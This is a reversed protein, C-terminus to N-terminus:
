GNCSHYAWIMSGIALMPILKTMVFHIIPFVSPSTNKNLLDNIEDQSGHQLKTECVVCFGGKEELMSDSWEKKCM